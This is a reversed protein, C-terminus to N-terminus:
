VECEEDEWGEDEGVGDECGEDEGVGDEGVGDEPEAPFSSEGSVLWFLVLFALFSLISCFVKLCM